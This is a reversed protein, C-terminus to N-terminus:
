NPAVNELASRKQQYKSNLVGKGRDYEDTADVRYNKIDEESQLLKEPVSEEDITKDMKWSEKFREPAPSNEKRWERNATQYVNLLGNGADELHDLHDKYSRVWRSYEDVTWYYKKPVDLIDKSIRNLVKNSNENADQLGNKAKEYKEVYEAKKRDFSHHRKGYQPYIDDWFLGDIFSIIAFLFGMFFLIWSQFDKLGWPNKAFAAIALQGGEDLATGTIERYHAVMLNFFTAFIIFLISVLFGVCKRGTANHFANKAVMGLLFAVGLNVFSIVIAEAYAGLIGLENGKALFATNGMTEILFLVAIIGMWLVKKPTDYSHAPRDLENKERFEAFEAEEHRFDNRKSGVENIDPDLQDFKTEQMSIATRMRNVQEGIPKLDSLDSEYLGIRKRYEEYAATKEHGITGQIEIETTSFDTSDSPPQGNKADKRGKSILDLEGAKKNVNIKEFAHPKDMASEKGNRAKGRSFISRIKEWIKVIITM